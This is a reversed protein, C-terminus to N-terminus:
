KLKDAANLQAEAGDAPPNDRYAQFNPLNVGLQARQTAAANGTNAGNAGLFPDQGAAAANPDDVMAAAQQQQGGAQAAGVIQTVGQLIPAVAPLLQGIIGLIQACGTLSVSCTLIIVLLISNKFTRM